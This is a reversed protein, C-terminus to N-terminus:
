GIESIRHRSGSQRRVTMDEREDASIAGKHRSTLDVDLHEGIALGSSQGVVRPHFVVQCERWVTRLYGVRSQFIGNKCGVSDRHETAVRMKEEAICRSQGPEIRVMKKERFNAGAQM